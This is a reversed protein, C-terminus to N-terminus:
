SWIRRFISESDAKQRRLKHLASNRSMRMEGVFAPLALRTRTTM